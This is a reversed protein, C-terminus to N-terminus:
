IISTERWKDRDSISRKLERYTKIGIDEMLQKMFPTRPREGRGPKGEIKGAIVTTIWRSHRILHGIWTKRRM